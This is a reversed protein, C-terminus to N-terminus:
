PSRGRYASNLAYLCWVVAAVVLLLGVAEAWELSAFYAHSRGTPDPPPVWEGAGNYPGEIAIRVGALLWQLLGVGAVVLGASLKLLTRVLKPAGGSLTVLCIAVGVGFLPPGLVTPWDAGKESHGERAFFWSAGVVAMVLSGIWLGNTSVRRPVNIRRFLLRAIRSAETM